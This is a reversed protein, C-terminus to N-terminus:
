TLTLYVGFLVNYEGFDGMDFTFNDLTAGAPYYEYICRTPTTTIGTSDTADAPSVYPTGGPTPSPAFSTVDNESLAFMLALVNEGAAPSTTLSQAAPNGSWTGSPTFDQGGAAVSQIPRNMRFTAVCIRGQEDGAGFSKTAGIDAATLIKYAALGRGYWLSASRGTISNLLATFGSPLTAAPAAGVAEENWQVSFAVCLDGAQIPSGTVNDVTPIVFNHENPFANAGSRSCGNVVLGDDLSGSIM